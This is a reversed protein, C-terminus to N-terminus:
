PLVKLRVEQVFGDGLPVDVLIVDTYNGAEDQVPRAKVDQKLLHGLAWGARLAHEDNAFNRGDESM